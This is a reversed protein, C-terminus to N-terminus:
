VQLATAHDFQNLASRARKKGMQLSTHEEGQAPMLM